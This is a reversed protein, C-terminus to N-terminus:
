PTDTVPTAGWRLATTVFARSSTLSARLNPYWGSSNNCIISCTEYTSGVHCKQVPLRVVGIAARLSVREDLFGTLAM